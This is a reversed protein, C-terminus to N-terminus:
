WNSCPELLREESFRTCSTVSIVVPRLASAFSSLTGITASDCSERWTSFRSVLPRLKRVKAFGTRDLLVGVDHQEHEALFIVQAVLLRPRAAFLMQLPLGLHRQHVALGLDDDAFLAVAWGAGHLQLEVGGHRTKAIEAGVVMQRLPDAVLALGARRRKVGGVLGDMYPGM